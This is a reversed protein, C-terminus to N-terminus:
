LVRRILVLLAETQREGKCLSLVSMRLITRRVQRTAYGLGRLIFGCLAFCVLSGIEGGGLVKSEVAQNCLFEAAPVYGGDCSPPYTQRGVWFSLLSHVAFSIFFVSTGRHGGISSRYRRIWLGSGCARHNFIS